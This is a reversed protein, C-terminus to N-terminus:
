FTYNGFEIEEAFKKRVIERLESDYYESYHLRTSSNRKPPPSYPIELKNCVEKFDRDLQEFKMLFDIDSDLKKNNVTNVKLGIKELAQCFLSRECIYHRIPRVGDVLTLFNDRNWEIKGRHPSFYFSIMMDWPNRITAFKFLSHYIEADLVFKYHSLVSHKRTNYRKNRVGFRELGDQQESQTIDDESYDKLINQISNGGTKPVHIFLFHKQTSIM